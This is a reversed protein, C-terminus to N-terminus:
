SSTSASGEAPVYASNSTPGATQPAPVTAGVANGEAVATKPTMRQYAQTMASLVAGTFELIRDPEAELIALAREPTMGPARSLGAALLGSLVDVDASQLTPMLDTDMRRGPFTRHAIRLARMDFVLVYRNGSGLPIEIPVGALPDAM